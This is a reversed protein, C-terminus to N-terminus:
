KEKERGQSVPGNNNGREKKIQKLEKYAQLDIVTSKKGKFWKGVLVLKRM